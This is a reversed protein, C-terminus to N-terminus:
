DTLLNPEVVPRDPLTPMLTELDTIKTQIDAILQTITADYRTSDNPEVNVAVVYDQYCINIRVKRDETQFSAISNELITIREQCDEKYRYDM